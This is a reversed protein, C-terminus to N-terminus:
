TISKALINSFFKLIITPIKDIGIAKHIKLNKLYLLVTVVEIEKITINASHNPNRIEPHYNDSIM